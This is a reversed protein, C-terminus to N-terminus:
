GLADQIEVAMAPYARQMNSAACLVADVDGPTRGAQDLADRAAAVGMEAMVSLQDNDREAIRPSMIAPDLIGDRDMVYRSQIGSAKEIFASSSYTKPAVEGREIADAHEENWADAWANFSAVLEDNTIRNPPTFLGTGSLVARHM